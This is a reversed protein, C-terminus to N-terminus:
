EDEEMGGFAKNMFELDSEWDIGDPDFDDDPESAPVRVWIAVRDGFTRDEAVLRDLVTGDEFRASQEKFELRLVHLLRHSLPVDLGEIPRDETAGAGGVMAEAAKVLKECDEASLGLRHKDIKRVGYKVIHAAAEILFEDM